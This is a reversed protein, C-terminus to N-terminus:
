KKKTLKVLLDFLQGRLQVAFNIKANALIDENTGEAISLLSQTAAFDPKMGSATTPDTTGYKSGDTTVANQSLSTAIYGPSLVTVKIGLKIIEGRLSDFYGQVAHKSAAYSTREPTGIRGQVSSVVAINGKIGKDIMIPLFCKTVAVTGFFNSNMVNMLSDTTTEMAGGRSSVGANNILIDISETLGNEKCQSLVQSKFVVDAGKTTALYILDMPVVM